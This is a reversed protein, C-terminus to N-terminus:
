RAPAIEPETVTTSGPGDCAVQNAVNADAAGAWGNEVAWLLGGSDNEIGCHQLPNAAYGDFDNGIFQNDTASVDSQSAAGRSVLLGPGGNRRFTNGHIRAFGSDLLTLGAGANDSITNDIAGGRTLVIGGHNRLVVNDSVRGDAIAIGSPGRTDTVENDYADARAAEIGRWGGTIRNGWIVSSDGATVVIGDGLGSSAGLLTFGQERYGFVVDPAAIVVATLTTRTADIITAAAGEDALITVRKDVYVLCGCGTMGTEEGPEGIMGDRDLDGYLGGTVVITDGDRANRLAQSISRCPNASGGCVASDMGGNGVQVIGFDPEWHTILAVSYSTVDAVTYGTDEDIAIDIGLWDTPFPVPIATGDLTRSSAGVFMLNAGEASFIVADNAPSRSDDVTVDGGTASMLGAITLEYVAREYRGPVTAPFRTEYIVFGQLPQGLRVSPRSPSTERVIGAFDIRYVDAHAAYAGLLGLTLVLLRSM